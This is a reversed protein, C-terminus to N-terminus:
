VSIHPGGGSTIGFIGTLLFRFSSEMEIGVSIEPIKPMISLVWLLGILATLVGLVSFQLISLFAFQVTSKFYNMELFFIVFGM